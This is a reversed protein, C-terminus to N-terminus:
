NVQCKTIKKNECGKVDQQMPEAPFRVMVGEGLWIGSIETGDTGVPCGAPTEILGLRGDTSGPNVGPRGAVEASTRVMGAPVCSPSHPEGLERLPCSPM